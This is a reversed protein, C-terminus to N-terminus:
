LTILNIINMPKNSQGTVQSQWIMYEHYTLQKHLEETYQAICQPDSLQTGRQSPATNQYISNAFLLVGDVDIYCANHVGSFISYLHLVGAATLSHIFEDSMYIYDSRKTGWSYFPPYPDPRLHALSDILGCTTALTALTGDHTPVHQHIGEIYDVPHFSGAQGGTDENGDLLLIISTNNTRLM